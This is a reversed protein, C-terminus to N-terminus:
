VCAVILSEDTSDVIYSVVILEAGDVVGDVAINDYGCSVPSVAGDELGSPYSSMRLASFWIGLIPCVFFPCIIYCVFIGVSCPSSGGADVAGVNGDWEKM